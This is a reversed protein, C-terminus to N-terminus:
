LRSLLRRIEDDTTQNFDEYWVGVAFFPDPRELCILEEVLPKIVTCSQPPGVPVAVVIQAPKLQRLAAIAARMTAGTALGDDILIVTKQAVTIPPRSGRYLQERRKVERLESDVVAQVTEDSLHTARIVDENIVKAGGSAIAGIALEPQEPLGLKRVILVDLAVNLAQAVAFGVPVGGRPLALVIVDSRDAFKQLEKALENGAQIRDVFRKAM